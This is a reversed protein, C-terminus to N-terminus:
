SSSSHANGAHFVEPIQTETVARKVATTEAGHLHLSAAYRYFKKSGATGYQLCCAWVGQWGQSM